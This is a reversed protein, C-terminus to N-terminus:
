FNGVTQPFIDSFKLPPIKQSASYNRIINVGGVRRHRLEVASDIM